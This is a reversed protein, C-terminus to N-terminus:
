HNFIKLKNLCRHVLLLLRASWIGINESAWLLFVPFKLEELSRSDFDNLLKHNEVSNNKEDLIFAFSRSKDIKQKSYDYTRATDGFQSNEIKQCFAGTGDFGLNRVKSVIPTGTGQGKVLRLRDQKLNDCNIVKHNMVMRIRHSGDGPTM